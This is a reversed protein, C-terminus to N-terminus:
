ADAAPAPFGSLSYARVLGFGRFRRPALPRVKFRVGPGAVSRGTMDGSQEANADESSLAAATQSDVLTSGPRAGATLRSALNVPDGYLDGMQMVPKGTALGIRLAPRGSGSAHRRHLALAVLAAIRPQDAAFMVEDGVTKILRAGTAAVVDATGTEFDAVLASLDAPTSSRVIRTFGAIDAFGICQVTTSASGPDRAMREVVAFLQRRWVHTLLRELAPLSQEVRAAVLAATADGADEWGAPTGPPGPHVPLGPGAADPGTGPGSVIPLPGAPVSLSGPRGTRWSDSHRRPSHGPPLPAVARALTEVQWDALRASTQAISRLLDLASVSDLIGARVFGLLMGIAEIDTAAFAQGGGVDAFGLARWIGILDEASVGLAAAAEDRDLSLPAGLLSRALRDEGDGARGPADAGPEDQSGPEPGQGLEPLHDSAIGGPQDATEPMETLWGFARDCM